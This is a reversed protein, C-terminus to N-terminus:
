NQSIQDKSSEKVNEKALCQHVKEILDKSAKNFKGVLTLERSTHNRFASASKRLSTIDVKRLRNGRESFDQAYQDLTGALADNKKVMSSLLSEQAEAMANLQKSLALCSSPESLSYAQATMFVLLITLSKFGM